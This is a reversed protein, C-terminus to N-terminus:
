PTSCASALLDQSTTEKLVVQDSRFSTALHCVCAPDIEVECVFWRIEQLIAEEGQMSAEQMPILLGRGDAKLVCEKRTWFRFFARDKDDSAAIKEREDPTMCIVFDELDINRIKEIDIGIKGQDTVACVTYEHSHSISFDLAGSVVPKGFREASLHELCDDGHGYRALCQRLLLKGLLRSQRDQWRLYRSVDQRLLPPLSRFLEVWLDEPLPDCLRTFLIKVMSKPDPAMEMQPGAQNPLSAESGIANGFVSKLVLLDTPQM